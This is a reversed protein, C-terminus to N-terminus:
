SAFSALVSLVSSVAVLVASSGSVAVKFSCSCPVVSSRELISFSAVSVSKFLRSLSSFNVLLAVMIINVLLRSANGEKGIVVRVAIYLIIFILSVNVLNRLIGWVYDISQGAELLAGFKSVSIYVALDFAWGAAWLVVGFVATLAM